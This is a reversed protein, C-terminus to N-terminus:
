VSFGTRWCKVQLTNPSQTSWKDNKQLVNSIEMNWFLMHIFLLHQRIFKWFIISVSSEKCITANVYTYYITLPPTALNHLSEVRTIPIFQIIGDSLQILGDTDLMFTITFTAYQIILLDRKHVRFYWGVPLNWNWERRTHSDRFALFDVVAKTGSRIGSLRCNEWNEKCVLDHMYYVNRARERDATKWGTRPCNVRRERCPKLQVLTEVSRSSYLLRWILAEVGVPRVIYSRDSSPTPDDSPVLPLVRFGSGWGGCPLHIISSAAGRESHSPRM